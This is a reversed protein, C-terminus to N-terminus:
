LVSDPLDEGHLDMLAEELEEFEGFSIGDAFNELEGIFTNLRHVPVLPVGEFIRIEEEILTVIIPVAHENMLNDYFLARERHQIVAKKLASLRYRNGSWQKCEVLLTQGDKRAIVDYQRRKRDRTKVTGVTTTFGNMEFIFAALREFNQWTTGQAM